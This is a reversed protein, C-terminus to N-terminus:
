LEAKKRAERADAAAPDYTRLNKVVFEYLDMREVCGVCKADWSDIIKRLDRVKAKEFDFNKLDLAKEYRLDCIDTVTKKLDECVKEAPKFMTIPLVLANVTKAASEELLGVNYCFSYEKGKRGQCHKELAKRVNEASRDSPVNELFSRVFKVCVECTEETIAGFASCVIVSLLICSFLRMGVLDSLLPYM